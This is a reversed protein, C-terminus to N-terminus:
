GTLPELVGILDGDSLGNDRWFDCFNAACEAPVAGPPFPGALWDGEGFISRPPEWHRLVFPQDVADNAYRGAGDTRVTRWSVKFGELAPDNSLAALKEKDTSLVGIASAARYEGARPVFLYRQRWVSEPQPV